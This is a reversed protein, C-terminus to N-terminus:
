EPISINKWELRSTDTIQLTNTTHNVELSFKYATNRRLPFFGQPLLASLKGGAARVELTVPPLTYSSTGVEIGLWDGTVIANYTGNGSKFPRFFSRMDGIYLEEGAQLGKVEFQLLSNGHVFQLAPITSLIKGKYAAVLLDAKELAAINTQDAITPITYRPGAESMDPGFKECYEKAAYYIYLAKEPAAAIDGQYEFHFSDKAPVAILSDEDSISWTYLKSGVFSQWGARNGVDLNNLSATVKAVGLKKVNDPPPITDPNDDKKCGSVMLLMTCCFSFSYLLKKM